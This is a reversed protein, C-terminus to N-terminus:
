WFTGRDEIVSVQISTIGNQHIVWVKGDTILRNGFVDVYARSCWAGMEHNYTFFRQDVDVMNFGSTFILAPCNYPMEIHLTAMGAEVDVRSGGPLPDGLSLLCTSVGARLTTNRVKLESFDLWIDAAGMDVAIENWVVKQPLSATISSTNAIENLTLNITHPAWESFGLEIGSAFGTANSMVIETGEGAHLSTSIGGGRINLNAERTKELNLSAVEILNTDTHSTLIPSAPVAVILTEGGPLHISVSGDIDGYYWSGILLAGSFLLAGILNFIPIHRAGGIIQLGGVVLLMPWLSMFCLLFTRAAIIQLMWALLVIGMSILVLAGGAREISWGKAGPTFLQIFGIIIFVLPWLRWISVNIINGLLIIIGICILFAGVVVAFSWHSRKSGGNQYQSKEKESDADAEGHKVEEAKTDIYGSMEAPDRPMLVMGAIYFVLPIGFGVVVLVVALIRILTPDINFYEAIGGCVGAIMPNSSKYLRKSAVM